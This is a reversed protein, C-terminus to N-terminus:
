IVNSAEPNTALLSTNGHHIRCYYTPTTGGEGHEARRSSAHHTPPKPLKGQLAERMRAQHMRQVTRVHSALPQAKIKPCSQAVRRSTHSLPSIQMKMCCFICSDPTSRIQMASSEANRHNRGTRRHNNTRRWISWESGVVMITRHLDIPESIVSFPRAM